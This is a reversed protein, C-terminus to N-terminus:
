LASEWVTLVQVAVLYLAQEAMAYLALNSSRSTREALFHPVNKLKMGTITLLSHASNGAALSHCQNKSNNDEEEKNQM